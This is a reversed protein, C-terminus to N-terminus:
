TIRCTGQTCIQEDKHFWQAWLWGPCAEASWASLSSTCEIGASKLSFFYIWVQPQVAREPVAAAWPNAPPQPCQLATCSIFHRTLAAPATCGCERGECSQCPKRCGLRDQPQSWMRNFAPATSNNVLAQDWCTVPQRRWGLLSRQQSVAGTLGSSQLFEVEM